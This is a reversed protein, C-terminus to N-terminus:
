METVHSDNAKTSHQTYIGDLTTRLDTSHQTYIANTGHYEIAASLTRM